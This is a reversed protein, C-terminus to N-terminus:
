VPLIYPLVESAVKFILQRPLCGLIDFHRGVDVFGPGKNEMPATFRTLSMFILAFCLRNFLIGGDKAVGELPPQNITVGELPPLLIAAM